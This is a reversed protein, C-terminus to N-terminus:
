LDVGDPYDEFGVPRPRSPESKVAGARALYEPWKRVVSGFTATMHRPWKGMWRAVSEVQAITPDHRYWQKLLVAPSGSSWPIYRGASHTRMAQEFAELSPGGVTETEKDLRTLVDALAKFDEGKDGVRQLLSRLAAETRKTIYVHRNV